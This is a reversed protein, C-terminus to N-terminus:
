RKYLHFPHLLQSNAELLPTAKISSIFEQQWPFNVCLTAGSLSKQSIQQFVGQLYFGHEFWRCYWNM